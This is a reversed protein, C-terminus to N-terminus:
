PASSETNVGALPVLGAKHLLTRLDDSLGSFDSLAAAPNARVVVDYVIGDDAIVCGEDVTYCIAKLRRRVTNRVVANGVARSVIFGFRTCKEVDSSGCRHERVYLVLSPTSFRRGRRVTARYDAARVLRKARALM